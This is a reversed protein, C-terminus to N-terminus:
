APIMPNEIHPTELKKLMDLMPEVFLFQMTVVGIALGLLFVLVYKM